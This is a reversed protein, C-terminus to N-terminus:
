VTQEQAPAEMTASQEDAGALARAHDHAEGVSGHTSHHHHGDQHHSHVHHEGGSHNHEISIHHAPGHAEVVQEPSESGAEKEVAPQEHVKNAFNTRSLGSRPMGQNDLPM